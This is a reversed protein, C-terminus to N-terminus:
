RCNDLVTLSIVDSHLASPQSSVCDRWSSDHLTDVQLRQEYLIPCRLWNPNSGAGSVERAPAKAIPPRRRTINSVLGTRCNEIM